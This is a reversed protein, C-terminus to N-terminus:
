GDVLEVRDGVDAGLEAMTGGAVELVGAFPAASPYTPCAEDPPCPVAEAIDVILGAGDVYVIDLDVLTNKMWFGGDHEADYVFWMGVGEPLEVVEMLGHQREADTRAIRVHFSMAADATTVVVRGADYGDVSPHLAPGSVPGTVVLEPAETSCGVLVSATAVALAM